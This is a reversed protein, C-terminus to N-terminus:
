VVELRENVIQRNVEFLKFLEAMEYVTAIWVAETGEDTKIANDRLLKYGQDDCKELRYGPFMSGFEALLKDENM